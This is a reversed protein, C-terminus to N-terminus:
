VPTEFPEPMFVRGKRQDALLLISIRQKWAPGAGTVPNGVFAIEVINWRTEENSLKQCIPVIDL